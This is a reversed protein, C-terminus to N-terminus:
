LFEKVFQHLHDDSYHAYAASLLDWDGGCYNLLKARDSERQARHQEEAEIERIVGPDTIGLYQFIRSHSWGLPGYVIKLLIFQNALSAHRNTTM